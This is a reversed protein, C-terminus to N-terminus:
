FPLWTPNACGKIRAILAADTCATLCTQMQDHPGSVCMRGCRNSMAIFSQWDATGRNMAAVMAATDVTGYRPVLYSQLRNRTSELKTLSQAIEARQKAVWLQVTPPAPPLNKASAAAGALGKQTWDIQANLVSLCYQSQLENDSPVAQQAVAIVTFTCLVLVIAASRM